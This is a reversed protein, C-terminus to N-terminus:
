RGLVFDINANQTDKIVIYAIIRWTAGLASGPSYMGM